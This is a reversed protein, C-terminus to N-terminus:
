SFFFPNNLTEEINLDGQMLGRDYISYLYKQYEEKSLGKRKITAKDFPKIHFLERNIGNAEAFSKIAHTDKFMKVFEERVVRNLEDVRDASVAFSDHCFSSSILPSNNDMAIATKMLLAADYSHVFNPSVASKMAKKNFKSNNPIGVSLRLSKKMDAKVIKGRRVTNVEVETGFSFRFTEIDFAEYFQNVVFGSPTTWTIVLDELDTKGELIRQKILRDVSVSLFTMIAEPGPLIEPLNDYITGGLEAANSWTISNSDPDEPFKKKLLPKADEYVIKQMGRRTGAYGFVMVPRKVLKRWINKSFKKNGWFNEKDFMKNVLSAVYMYIDERIKSKTLNVAKGIKQDKGMAALIQLGSCTADIAIPQRTENPEFVLEFLQAMALYPKEWKQWETNTNPNLAINRLKGWNNRVWRVREDPLLKDLSLSSKPEITNAEVILSALNWEQWYRERDGVRVPEAFEMVARDLDSGQPSMYIANPYLRSRFDNTYKFYFCHTQMFRSVVNMLGLFASDRGKISNKEDNYKNKIEILKIYEEAPCKLDQSFFREDLDAAIAKYEKYLSQKLTVQFDAGIRGHIKALNVIRHNIRWATKGCINNARFTEDSPLSKIATSKIMDNCNYEDWSKPVKDQPLRKATILERRKEMLEMYEESRFEAIYITRDGQSELSLKILNLRGEGTLLPNILIQGVAVIHLPDFSVEGFKEIYASDLFLDEEAHMFSKGVEALIKTFKKRVNNNYHSIVREAGELTDEFHRLPDQAVRSIIPVEYLDIIASPNNILSDSDDEAIGSSKNKAREDSILKLQLPYILPTDYIKQIISM